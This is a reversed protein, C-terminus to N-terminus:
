RGRLQERFAHLAETQGRTKSLELHEAVLEPGLGPFSRSTATGTYTTGSLLYMEVRKGDYRWIEPVGFAAYIPFKSLSENTIDIEVVVDPPPDSELDVKRRGIIRDANAVYFCTDPESGKRLSRRKWTASGRTELPIGREECFVHALRLIFETYAEHEPSPSMIELRGEDYSVRMGPWDALDDLIREYEEWTVQPLVLIAADPLHAVAEVLSSTRVSMLLNYSQASRWRQSARFSHLAVRRRPSDIRSLM